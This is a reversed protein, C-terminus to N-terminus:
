RWPGATRAQSSTIVSSPGRSRRAAANETSGTSGCRTPFCAPSTDRLYTLSPWPTRESHSCFTRRPTFTAWPMLWSKPSRERSSKVGMTFFTSRSSISPSSCTGHLRDAWAALADALSLDDRPQEVPGDVVSEVTERVRALLGRRPDDHWDRFTVVVFEPGRAASRGPHRVGNIEHAVGADLLSSKGCGSPGYLVTLRAAVLNSTIVARDAERGFFYLAEKETFPALGIFPKEGSAVTTTATM